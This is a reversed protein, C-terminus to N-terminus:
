GRTGLRARRAANTAHNQRMVAGPSMKKSPQNKAACVEILMLLHNLHWKECPDFPINLATMWYYIIENTIIEHSSKAAVKKITTATMPNNIYDSIEKIQANTISLYTLPDTNGKITMCRIYDLEEERTKLQEQKPAVAQPLYPKHWKAEWKAISVLSHELVLTRDPVDFFRNSSEDYLERGQVTVTLPM